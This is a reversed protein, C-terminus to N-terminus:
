RVDIEDFLVRDDSLRDGQPGYAPLREGTLPDYLGVEIVGTGVYEAISWIVEHTDVIEDGKEWTLVSRRGVAPEGDHQAIVRGSSDLLHVFVKYNTSVPEERTAQWYLTVKFSQGVVVEPEIRYGVLRAVDAFRVDLPYQPERPADEATSYAVVRGERSVPAGEFSSSLVLVFPELVIANGPWPRGAVDWAPIREDPQGPYYLGVVMSYQGPPVGDVMAVRSEQVVDGQKWDLRHIVDDSSVVRQGTRPDVLQAFLMYAQHHEDTSRWILDVWVIGGGSALNYGLLEIPAKFGAGFSRGPFALLKGDLELVQIPQSMSYVGAGEKGRLPVIRVEYDGSRSVPLAWDRCVLGSRETFPSTQEDLVREEADLLTVQEGCEQCPGQLLWCTSLDITGDGWSAALTPQLLSIDGGFRQVIHYSQETQQEVPLVYVSRDQYLPRLGFFLSRVEAPVARLQDKHVIMYRVNEKALDGLAADLTAPSAQGTWSGLLPNSEIFSFASSVVRHDWGGVMPKHHITQYYRDIESAERTLPFDAVAYEQGDAAMQDYFPSHPPPVKLSMPVILYEVLIAGACAASLWPRGFRRWLHSCALGVLVSLAPAVMLHFRNPKEFGILASLGQLWHYPLKIRPYVVGNVQLCPGLALSFFLGGALLWPFADRFHFVAVYVCLILPVWGVFAWYFSVNGPFREEYITKTWSGFGPHQPPPVVYSLVDAPVVDTGERVLAAAEPHGVLQVMHVALPSLLLFTLAGALLLRRWALRPWKRGEVLALGVFVGGNLLLVTAGVQLRTLFALGVTTALLVADRFRAERLLRIMFWTACPVWALMALNLHAARDAALCPMFGFTIGAVWAAWPDGTLYVVLQDMAACCFVIVLWVVANYAAIPSMLWSLPIWLLALFPSFAFTTLDFGLPYILYRTFYPNQGTALAERVWWNGWYVNLIDTESGGLRSGLYCALPWTMLVSLAAYALWRVWRSPRTAQKNQRSMTTGM